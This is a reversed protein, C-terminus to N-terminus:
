KEEFVPKKRIYVRYGFINKLRYNRKMTTNFIEPLHPQLIDYQIKKCIILKPKARVLQNRLNRRVKEDVLTDMMNVYDTANKRESLFYLIAEHFCFIKEDPSTNARIFHDVHNLSRAQHIPPSVGGKPSKLALHHPRRVTKGRPPNLKYHFGFRQSITSADNVIRNPGLFCFCVYYVQVLIAFICFCVVFPALRNGKRNKLLNISQYILFAWLIHILIGSQPLRFIHTAFPWIHNFSLVGLVLSSLVYGNKIDQHFVGKRMKRSLFLVVLVLALVSTYVFFVAREIGLIQTPGAILKEPGPFPSSQRNANKIDNAIRKLPYKVDNELGHLIFLPSIFVWILLFLLVLHSTVRFLSAKRQVSRVTVAIVATILGYGAIDVRIYFSFGIVLACLAIRKPDTKKQLNFVALLNLLLLMAVFSKHWYGPTLLLLIVPMFNYPSPTIKRAILFVLINNLCHILIFLIRAVAISRGFLEFFGALLYYEGLFYQDFKIYPFPEELVREAQAIILGEDIDIKIYKFYLLNYVCTSVLILSIIFLTLFGNTRNKQM